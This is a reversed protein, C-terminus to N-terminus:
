YRGSNVWRCEKTESVNNKRFIEFLTVLVIDLLVFTFVLEIFLNIKIHKKLLASYFLYRNKFSQKELLIIAIYVCCLKFYATYKNIKAIFSYM